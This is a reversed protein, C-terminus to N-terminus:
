HADAPATPDTSSARSTPKHGDSAVAQEAEEENYEDTQIRNTVDYFPPLYVDKPIKYPGGLYDPLLEPFRQYLPQMGETFLDGMLRGILNRYELYRAEEDCDQVFTVSQNLYGGIRALLHALETAEKLEM